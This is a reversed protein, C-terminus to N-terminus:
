EPATLRVPFLVEGSYGFSTLPPAEVREPATLELPGASWGPPLRWSLRTPLGSDGPNSWYTHWHPAHVLRLAADFSEGPAAARRASVLSAKVMGASAPAAALLAALALLVM